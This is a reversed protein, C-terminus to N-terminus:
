LGNAAGSLAKIILNGGGGPVASLAASNLAKLNDIVLSGVVARCAVSINLGAAGSIAAQAEKFKVYAIVGGSAIGANTVTYTQPPSTSAGPLGELGTAQLVSHLCGPLPDDKPLYGAAVYNDANVAAAQLDVAITSGQAVPIPLTVTAGPQVATITETTAAGACGALFLIGFIIGMTLYKM